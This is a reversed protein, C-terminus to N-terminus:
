AALSLEVTRLRLLMVIITGLYEDLYQTQAMLNERLIKQIVITIGCDHHVRHVMTLTFVVVVSYLFLLLLDDGALHRCAANCCLVGAGVAVPPGGCCRYSCCCQKYCCM